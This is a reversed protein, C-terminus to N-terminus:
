ALLGRLVVSDEQWEATLRERLVLIGRQLAEQECESRYIGEIVGAVTNPVHVTGLSFYERLVPWDSTILPKGLSVAEFCGMLVTDNQNTLDMIVDVARLLGVYQNNSLYGTLSCNDPKRKLLHQPIRKSNGTIYFRVDRLCRAADFLVDLPEDRHFTSIVAVNFEEGLPFHDGQPYDGPTFGIVCYHCGWYKVIEEQAKNHVITVRARRSLLRHLGISWRWSPSLFAGTHSDIVFQAGFLRCYLSVLLVCFIPPNQVLILSPCERRLVRWTRFAQLPYKVLTHLLVGQEGYSIYYARAGLHDALIEARRHYRAWVIFVREM